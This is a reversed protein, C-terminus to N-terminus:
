NPLVPTSMNEIISLQTKYESFLRSMNLGVHVKSRLHAHISKKKISKGCTCNFVDKIPDYNYTLRKFHSYTKLHANIVNKKVDKGCACEYCDKEVNYKTKLDKSTFM